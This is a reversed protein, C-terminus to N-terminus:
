DDGDVVDQTNPTVDKPELDPYDFGGFVVSHRMNGEVKQVKSIGDVGAVWENAKLRVHESEATTSMHNIRLYAAQAANDRIARVLQNYAKRVEPKNIAKIFNNPRINHRQAAQSPTLGEYAMDELAQKSHAHLRTRQVAFFGAMFETEIEKVANPSEKTM